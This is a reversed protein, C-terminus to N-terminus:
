WYHVCGITRGYEEDAGARLSAAADFLLEVLLEGLRLRDGRALRRLFELFVGLVAGVGGEVLGAGLEVHAEGTLM